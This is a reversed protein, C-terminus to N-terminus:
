LQLNKFNLPIVLELLSIKLTNLLSIIYNDYM